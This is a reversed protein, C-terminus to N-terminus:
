RGRRRPWPFFANVEQQYRLYYEGRSRLSQAEAWPIGSVRNLFVFMLVPGVLSLWFLGSGM